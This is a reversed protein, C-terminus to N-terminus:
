GSMYVCVYMLYYVYMCVYSVICVYMCVYMYQYLYMCICVSVFICVYVWGFVCFMHKEKNKRISFFFAPSSFSAGCIAWRRLFFYFHWIKRRRGSCEQEKESVYMWGDHLFIMRFRPTIM